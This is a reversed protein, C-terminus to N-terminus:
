KSIDLSTNSAPAAFHALALWLRAYQQWVTMARIPTTPLPKGAITGRVTVAYSVVYANGNLQVNFDGLSYERIDLQKWHELAQARELTGEPTVLVYTAAIHMELDNWNKAKLDNWFARELSEGGTVDSWKRPKREPWVSCSTLVGTVLLVSALWILKRM